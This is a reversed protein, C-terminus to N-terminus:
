DEREINNWHEIAEQRGVWGYMQFLWNHGCKTCEIKPAYEGYFDMVSVGKCRPCPKIAALRIGSAPPLM